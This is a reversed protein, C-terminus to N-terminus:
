GSLQTNRLHADVNHDDDGNERKKAVGLFFLCLFNVFFNKARSIMILGVAYRTRDQRKNNRMKKMTAAVEVVVVAVVDLVFLTYLLRTISSATLVISAVLDFMIRCLMIRLTTFM